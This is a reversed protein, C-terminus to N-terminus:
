RSSVFGVHYEQDYVLTVHRIDDADVAFTDGETFEGDIEKDLDFEIREDDTWVRVTLNAAPLSDGGVHEVATEDDTFALEVSPRTRTGGVRIDEDGWVVTVDTGAPM